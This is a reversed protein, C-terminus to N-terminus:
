CQCRKDSCHVSRGTVESDVFQRDDFADSHLSCSTTCFSAPWAYATIRAYSRAIQFPDSAHDAVGDEDRIAHSNQM